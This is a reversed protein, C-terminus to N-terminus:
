GKVGKLFIEEYFKDEKNTMDARVPLQRFTTKALDTDRFYVNYKGGEYKFHWTEDFTTPLREAIQPTALLREGVKVIERDKDSKQEFVSVEHAEVIVNCVLSIPFIYEMIFRDLAAHVFKYHPMDSMLLAKANKRTVYMGGKAQQDYYEKAEWLFFDLVSTISSIVVTKYKFTGQKVQALHMEQVKEAKGWGAIRPFTDYDVDRGRLAQIRGDFDHMYLPKPFSAAATSKRTGSKGIFLARIKDLNNELDKANPM